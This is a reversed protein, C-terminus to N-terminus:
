KGMYLGNKPLIIKDSEFVMRFGYKNLLLGSLLNKHIEPVYLVNNLIVEKRSTMKLIMQRQGEIELTTSNEIYLKEGKRNCEFFIFMEKIQAYMDFPLLTLGSDRLNFHVLDVEFVVRSLNIDLMDKSMDEVLNTERHGKKKPLGCELAKHNM